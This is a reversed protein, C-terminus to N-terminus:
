HVFALDIEKRNKVSRVVTFFLKLFFFCLLSVLNINEIHKVNEEESMHHSSMGPGDWKMLMKKSFVYVGYFVYVFLSFRLISIGFANTKTNKCKQVNYFM